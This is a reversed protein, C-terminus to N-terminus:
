IGLLGKLPPWFNAILMLPSYLAFYGLSVQILGMCWIRRMLTPRERGSAARARRSALLEEAAAIAGAIQRDTAPRTVFWHQILGGIRRWFIAAFPMAVLVAISASDGDSMDLRRMTLFMGLFAMLFLTFGTFVNTGCRPHVRPMQKVIDGRLPAGREVCHVVQHEAAHVGSLPILRFMAFVLLLPLLSISEVAWIRLPSPPHGEAAWVQLDMSTMHVGYHLALTTLIQATLMLGCCVMGTLFLGWIGAGGVSVGDTLYVGLPTAMGGPRVAPQSQVVADLSPQVQVTIPARSLFGVIQGTADDVIPAAAMRTDRLHGLAEALTAQSRIRQGAPGDPAGHVAAQVMGPQNANEQALSEDTSDLDGAERAALEAADPGNGAIDDAEPDVTTLDSGQMQAEAKMM